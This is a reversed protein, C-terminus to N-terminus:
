CHHLDSQDQSSPVQLASRILKHRCGLVGGLDQVMMLLIDAAEVAEPSFESLRRGVLSFRVKEDRANSEPAQILEWWQAPDSNNSEMEPTKGNGKGKGNRSPKGSEDIAESREVTETVEMAKESQTVQGESSFRGGPLLRGFGMDDDTEEGEDSAEDEAVFLGNESESEPQEALLIQKATPTKTEKRKRKSVRTPTPTVIFKKPKRKKRPTSTGRGRRKISVTQPTWDLGEVNVSYLGDSVNLYMCVKCFQKNERSSRQVVSTNHQGCRDCKATHIYYPVWVEPPGSSLWGPPIRRTPIALHPTKSVTPIMDQPTPTSPIPFEEAADNRDLESDVVEQSITPLLQFSQQPDKNSPDDRAAVVSPLL